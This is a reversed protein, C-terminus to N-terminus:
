EQKIINYVKEGKKTTIKVLYFGNLYSTMDINKIKSGNKNFRNHYKLVGNLNYIDVDSNESVNQQITLVTQVPNPFVTYSPDGEAVGVSCKGSDANASASTSTKHTSEFTTLNWKLLNGDFLIEFSGEGPLFVFPFEGSYLADGTTNNDAGRIVYLTNDNPNEYSFKAVYDYGSPDNPSYVICDLYNRIKRMQNGYPNIYLKGESVYEILYNRPEERIKSTFVGTEASSQEDGYENVFYYTIGGPFVDDETDGHVYENIVSTFQPNDGQNIILDDILVYLTAKNITLNGLKTDPSFIYNDDIDDIIFIDYVGVDMKDGLFYETGDKMFFYPIAGDVKLINVDEGPAFRVFNPEIIPTEGYDVTESVATFTLAAESITLNGHEPGYDM